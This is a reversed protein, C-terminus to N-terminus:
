PEDIDATDNGTLPLRATAHPQPQQSSSSPLQQQQQQNSHLTGTRHAHRLRLEGLGVAWGSSPAAHLLLTALRLLAWCREAASDRM